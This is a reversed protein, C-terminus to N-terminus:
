RAAREALRAETRNAVDAAYALVFGVVLVVLLVNGATEITKNRRQM